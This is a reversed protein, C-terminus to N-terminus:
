RERRDQPYGETLTIAFTTPGGEASEVLIRGNHLHVIQKAIALGMGFGSHQRSKDVRWFREFIHKQDEESIAEGQNTIAIITEQEGAELLRQSAEVLVQDGSPSHHISNELLQLIAVNLYSPDVQISHLAQPLRLDFTVQHEEAMSEMSLLSQSLLEPISVSYYHLDVGADLKSILLLQDLLRTMLHIQQDIEGLVEQASRRSGGGRALLHANVKIVALPTRFEHSADEVFRNIVDMREQELAMEIMQDRFQIVETVDVFSAVAGDIEGSEQNFLPFASVEIWDVSQDPQRLGMRVGEVPQRHTLALMAPHEDPPFPSGDARIVQWEPSHSSRTLLDDASVGLIQEAAPNCAVIQGSRDHMVLGERLISVMRRYRAESEVLRIALLHENSIDRVIVLAEDQPLPSFRIEFWNRGVQPYELSQLEGSEFMTQLAAIGEEAKEPPLFDRLHCGV